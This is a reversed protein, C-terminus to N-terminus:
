QFHHRMHRERLMRGVPGRPRFHHLYYHLMDYALYGAYFGAGLCPAYAEGFVLYLLAFILAALPVSVAPPMVLRLPDHPHDHPRAAPPRTTPPSASGVRPRAAALREAWRRTRPGWTAAGNSACRDEPNVYELVETQFLEQHGAVHDLRGRAYIGRVLEVNQESM